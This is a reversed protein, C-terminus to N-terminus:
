WGGGAGGGGSDGGGGFFGGTDGGGGGFGGGGIWWGGRRSDSELRSGSNKRNMLFSFFLLMFFFGLPSFLVRQWSFSKRKPSATPYEKAAAKMMAALGATFGGNYDGRQFAPAMVEDILRKCFADPLAGELGYGTQIRIQHEQQFVLLLIGNSQKKTGLHWTTYLKQAVDEIPSKSWSKPYIAVVIQNSTQRDFNALLQNFHFADQSSVIGAADNFYHQPVPPWAETAWVIM